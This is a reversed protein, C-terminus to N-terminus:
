KDMLCYLLEFVGIWLRRATDMGTLPEAYNRIQDAVTINEAYDLKWILWRWSADPCSKIWCKVLKLLCENYSCSETIEEYKASSLWLIMFAVFDLQESYMFAIDEPLEVDRLLRAIEEAAAELAVTSITM